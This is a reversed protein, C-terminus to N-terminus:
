SNKLFYPNIEIKAQSKLRALWAQFATEVKQQHLKERIEVKVEDLGAQRASQRDILQFIHYGYSTGFVKSIQRKGKLKFAVEEFEAPMQGRSFYGLDGGRVGDPSLSHTEALKAFDAGRRLKKRLKNAEMESELVIQRVRVQEPRKFENKHEQFYNSIEEENIEVPEEIEQAILKKILLEKELNQQWQSLTLGEQRLNKEFSGEAYDAAIKQTQKKLEVPSVELRWRRAEKLMLRKTILQELLERQLKNLSKEGGPTGRLKAYALTLQHMSQRYDNLTIKEGNISALVIQSASAKGKSAAPSKKDRCGCVVILLSLCILSLTRKRM